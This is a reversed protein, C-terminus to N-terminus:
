TPSLSMFMPSEKVLARPNNGVYPTVNFGCHSDEETVFLGPPMRIPFQLDLSLNQSIMQCFNLKSYYPTVGVIRYLNNEFEAM